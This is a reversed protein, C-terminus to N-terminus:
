QRTLLIVTNGGADLLMLKQQVADIRWTKVEGLAAFFKAEQDMAAPTCAMNTAAIPGFAINEGSITARGSMRNCGGTGSVAGDEALELVTQLRDIVGGGGIDEALWSGTPLEASSTVRQVLIDTQDTGGTFVEHRTTNIFMLRGDVTVRAQVAYSHRPQIDGARYELTYPIPVQGQPTLTVEALVKAPADALSIDVLKVEVSASPPLAIRERYIVNGSLTRTEAMAAMPFFAAALFLTSIAFNVVNEM